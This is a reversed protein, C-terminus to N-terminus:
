LIHDGVPSLVGVWEWPCVTQIDKVKVRPPPPPFWLSPSLPLLECPQTSLVLMISQIELRYVKIFGQRMTGKCTLKLSQYVGAEFDSLTDIKKSSQM